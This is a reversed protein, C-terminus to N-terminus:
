LLPHGLIVTENVFDGTSGYLDVGADVLALIRVVVEHLVSERARLELRHTFWDGIAYELLNAYPPKRHLVLVNFQNHVTDRRQM